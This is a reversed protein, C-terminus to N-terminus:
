MLARLEQAYRRWFEGYTSRPVAVEESATRAGGAERMTITRCQDHHREMYVWQAPRQLVHGLAIVALKMLGVPQEVANMVSIETYDDYGRFELRMGDLLVEAHRVHLGPVHRITAPYPFHGPIVTRIFANRTARGDTRTWEHVRGHIAFGGPGSTARLHTAIGTWHASSREVGSVSFTVDDNESRALYGGEATWDDALMGRPTFHYLFANDGPNSYATGKQSSVLGRYAAVIRSEIFDFRLEGAVAKRIIDAVLMAVAGLAWGRLRGNAPPFHM